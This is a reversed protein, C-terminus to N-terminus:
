RAVDFRLMPLSRDAVGSPVEGVRVAGLRAYFAEANPDAVVRMTRAGRDRARGLAHEVLVRGVGTGIAAPEVFCTDLEVDPPEDVVAAVGLVQGRRQAVFVEGRAIMEESVVLQDRWGELLAADYGWHAKSRRMLESLAVSEGARADRIVVDTTSM